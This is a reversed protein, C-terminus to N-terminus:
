VLVILIFTHIIHITKLTRITESTAGANLQDSMQPSEGHGQTPFFDKQSGCSIKIGEGSLNHSELALSAHTVQHVQLPSTLIRCHFPSGLVLLNYPIALSILIFQLLNM